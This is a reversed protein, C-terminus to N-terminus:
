LRGGLLNGAADIKKEGEEDIPLNAEDPALGNGKTKATKQRDNRGTPTGIRKKGDSYFMNPTSAGSGPAQSLDRSANMSTNPGDEDFDAQSGVEDIDMSDDGGVVDPSARAKGKNPNWLKVHFTGDRDKEKGKPPRGRGRKTADPQQQERHKVQALEFFQPPEM